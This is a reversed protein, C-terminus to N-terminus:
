ISYTGLVGREERDQARKNQWMIAEEVKLLAMENEKCAFDGNQFTKLREKVIYLLDLDLIGRTSNSDKRAGCQYKIELLVDGTDRDEVKFEHVGNFKIEDKVKTVNLGNIGIARENM